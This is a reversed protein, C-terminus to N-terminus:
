RLPKREPDSPAGRIWDPSNGRNLSPRRCRLVPRVPWGPELDVPGLSDIDIPEQRLDRVEEHRGLGLDVREPVVVPGERLPILVRLFEFVSLRELRFLGENQEQHELLERRLGDNLDPYLASLRRAAHPFSM